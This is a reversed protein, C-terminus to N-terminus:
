CESQQVSEYIYFIVCEFTKMNKNISMLLSFIFSLEITKLENQNEKGCCVCDLNVQM